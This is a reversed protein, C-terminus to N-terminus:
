MVVYGIVKGPPTLSDGHFIQDLDSWHNLPDIYGRGGVEMGRGDAVGRVYGCLWYGEM